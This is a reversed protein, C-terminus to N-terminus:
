AKRLARMKRRFQRALQVPPFEKVAEWIPTKRMRNAFSNPPFHACLVPFGMLERHVIDADATAAIAYRHAYEPHCFFTKNAGIAFPVITRPQTFYRHVADSVGPFAENFCDDLIIVGGKALAGEATELDHATIEATHGGDISILRFLGGALRILDAATIKTSDGQHVILRADDAHKRLNALFRSRDGHPAGVLHAGHDEFLDVAVAKEGDESLLYLLTFLRGHYVGIEAVPGTIKQAGAISIIMRIAGYFLWGDVFKHGWSAYRSLKDV